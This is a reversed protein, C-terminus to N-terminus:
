GADDEELSYWHYGGNGEEDMNGFCPDVGYCYICDGCLECFVKGCEITKM